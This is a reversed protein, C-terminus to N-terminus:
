QSETPNCQSKVHYLKVLSISFQRNDCDVVRKDKRKNFDINQQPPPTSLHPSVHVEEIVLEVDKSLKNPPPQTIM